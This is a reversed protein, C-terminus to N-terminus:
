LTFCCRRVKLTYVRKGNEDLYYMLHMNKNNTEGGRVGNPKISFNIQPTTTDFHSPLGEGPELKGRKKPQTQGYVM